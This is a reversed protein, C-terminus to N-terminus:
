SVGVVQRNNCLNVEDRLCFFCDGCSVTSDFTVRDGPKWDQVESGVQTIVGAAEHGMVIPPIRRGTSGDMGHVDSGCIGCSQVRILVDRPGIEPLPMDVLKLHNYQELLLANMYSCDYLPAARAPGASSVPQITSGLYVPSIPNSVARGSPESDGPFPHANGGAKESSLFNRPTGVSTWSVRCPGSSWETTRATAALAVKGGPLSGSPLTFSAALAPSVIGNLEAVPFPLTLKWALASPKKSAPM